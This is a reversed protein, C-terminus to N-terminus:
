SARGAFGGPPGGGDITRTAEVGFAWAIRM